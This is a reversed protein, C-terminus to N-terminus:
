NSDDGKEKKKHNRSANGKKLPPKKEVEQKLLVKARLTEFDFNNGMRILDKPKNNLSEVLGNTLNEGPFNFYNVLEHRCNKITKKVEKFHAVGKPINEMWYNLMENAEVVNKAKYVDRLDEKTWYAEKLVPYKAFLVNLRTKKDEDLKGRDTLLAKRLGWLYGKEDKKASRKYSNFYNLIVHEVKAIVHFKDVVAYAKPLTEKVANKYGSNMDMTVAAINEHGKLALIFNKVTEKLNNDLIDIIVHNDMDAFVARAKHHIYVEDIGLVRPAFMHAKVTVAVERFYKSVTESSM